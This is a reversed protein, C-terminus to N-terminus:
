RGTKSNRPWPVFTSYLIFIELNQLCLAYPLRRASNIRVFPSASLVGLPNIASVYHRILVELQNRSLRTRARCLYHELSMLILLSNDFSKPTRFKYITFIHAGSIERFICGEDKQMNGRVMFRHVVIRNQIM